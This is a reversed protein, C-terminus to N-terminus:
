CARPVDFCSGCHSSPPCAESCVQPLRLLVLAPLTFLGAFCCSCHLFRRLLLSRLALGLTALRRNGTSNARVYYSRSLPENVSCSRRFPVKSLLCVLACVRLCAFVCALLRAPLCALLCALLCDILPLAVAFCAKRTWLCDSHKARERRGTARAPKQCDKDQTSQHTNSSDDVRNSPTAPSTADRIPQLTQYAMWGTTSLSTRSRSTHKLGMREVTSQNCCAVTEDAWASTEPPRAPASHGHDTPTNPLGDLWNNVPKPRSRSTHKLGM